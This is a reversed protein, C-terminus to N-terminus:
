LFRRSLRLLINPRKALAGEGSDTLTQAAGSGFNGVSRNALDGEDNDDNDESSNFRNYSLLHFHKVAVRKMEMRSRLQANAGSNTRTPPLGLIFVRSDPHMEQFM